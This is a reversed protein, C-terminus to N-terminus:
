IFVRHTHMRANYKLNRFNSAVVCGGIDGFLDQKDLEEIAMVKESSNAMHTM